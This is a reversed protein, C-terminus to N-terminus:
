EVTTNRLDLWLYPHTRFGKVKKSYANAFNMVYAIVGPVDEEAYVQFQQYLKALEKEDKTVRAKDLVEDIRKSSFHWMRANWSGTSHYWPYTSADISPRTFYGDTYFPSKGSVETQFRNYPLRQVEVEIGVQRLMQQVAVGMRERTPRGVPTHLVVKFGNPYGAEALLKKAQAVDPKLSLQKNFFPHRPSIPTHTPVGHGFVSFQTLQAKDLALLVARRVRVDDFPKTTNGFVLGDWTSTSQQLDM